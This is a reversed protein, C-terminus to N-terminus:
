RGRGMPFREEKWQAKRRCPEPVCPPFEVCQRLVVGEALLAAVERRMAGDGGDVVTVGLDSAARRAASLLAASAGIIVVRTM